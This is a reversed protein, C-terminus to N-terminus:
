EKRKLGTVFLTAKRSSYRQRRMIVATGAVTALLAISAPEPVAAARIFNDIDSFRNGTYTIGSGYL